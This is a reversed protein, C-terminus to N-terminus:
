CKLAECWERIAGREISPRGRRTRIAGHEANGARHREQKQGQPCIAGKPEIWARCKRGRRRRQIAGREDGREECRDRIAEREVSSRGRRAWREGQPNSRAQRKWDQAAQPNSREADSLARVLCSNSRARCKAKRMTGPERRASGETSTAERGANSTSQEVRL